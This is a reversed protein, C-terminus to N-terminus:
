RYGMIPYFLLAAMGWDYETDTRLAANSFM